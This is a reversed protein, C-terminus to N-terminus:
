RLRPFAPRILLSARKHALHARAPVRV